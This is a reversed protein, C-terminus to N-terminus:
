KESDSLIKEHAKEILECIVSSISVVKTTKQQRERVLRLVKTKLAEDAWVQIPISKSRM